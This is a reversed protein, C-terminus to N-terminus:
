LFFGPRTVPRHKVRVQRPQANTYVAVLCYLSRTSPCPFCASSSSFKTYISYLTPYGNGCTGSSSIRCFLCFFVSDTPRFSLSSILAIVKPFWKCIPAPLALAHTLLGLAPSQLQLRPGLTLGPAMTTTLHASFPRHLRISVMLPTSSFALFFLVSGCNDM